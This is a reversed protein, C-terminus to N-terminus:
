SSRPIIEAIREALALLALDSGRAALLSLGVPAGAARAAPITVEPIGALGSIAGVRQIADRLADLQAQDASRLPAPAPSTPVVLVAGAALLAQMRAQFRHRFARAENVQAATVASSRTFRTRIVPDLEANEAEIWGGLSAWAERGQIVRQAAVLADAGGPLLDLPLLPGMGAIARLAPQLADRTAPEANSWAENVLFFTGGLSGPPAAEPLLVQGIRTLLAADRTFWGPTDLSPAMPLAGQLSIAGHSPRIGFLGCYSAPMRVSGGTDSGLAFDAGGAAVLSASGSSSGGPLRDPAAPNAPTGYWKNRGEMGFVLEVTATKATLRAGQDLLAAIVWAHATPAAHSRAWDPNGFGTVEGKIDFLDKAGFSLGDLLGSGTPAIDLAKIIGSAGHDHNM